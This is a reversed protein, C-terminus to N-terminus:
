SKSSAAALKLFQILFIYPFSLIYDSGNLLKGFLM